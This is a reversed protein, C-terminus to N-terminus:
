SDKEHQILAVSQAAIGEERGIFGLGDTTTAKITVQTPEIGLAQSIQKRMEPIFPSLKPCQAIITTDINAVKFGKAKVSEHIRNLLTLSSIGEHEPEESPFQTGIDGLDAAGCLADIVAHTAVDADSRGLLGKAYPIDVGGLILKRGPVLPHSDYGIGVRLEREM